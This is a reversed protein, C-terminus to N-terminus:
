PSQYLSKGDKNKVEIQPKDGDLRMTMIRQTAKGLDKLIRIEAVRGESDSSSLSIDMRDKKGEAGLLELSRGHASLIISDPLFGPKRRDEPNRRIPKARPDCLTLGEESLQTGFDGKATFFQLAPKKGDFMLAARVNGDLDVLKFQTAPTPAARNANAGMIVATCGVVALSMVALKLWRNQKELSEM